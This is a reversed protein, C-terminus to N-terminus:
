PVLPDSRFRECLEFFAGQANLWKPDRRIEAMEKTTHNCVLYSTNGLKICADYRTGGADTAFEFDGIAFARGAIMTRLPEVDEPFHQRFSEARPGFYALIGQQAALSLIAWEDFVPRLYSADMRACSSQIQQRAAALDM